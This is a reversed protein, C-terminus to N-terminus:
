GNRTLWFETGYGVSATVVAVGNPPLTFSAGHQRDFHECKRGCGRRVGGRTHCEAVAGPRGAFPFPPHFHAARKAPSRYSSFAPSWEILELRMILPFIPVERFKIDIVRVRQWKQRM